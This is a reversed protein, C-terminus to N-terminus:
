VQDIRCIVEKKARKPAFFIDSKGSAFSVAFGNNKGTGLRSRERSRKYAENAQAADRAAASQWNSRPHFMSVDKETMARGPDYSYVQILTM